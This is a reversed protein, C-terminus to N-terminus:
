VVKIYFSDMVILTLIKAACLTWGNIIVELQTDYCRDNSYMMGWKQLSTLRTEIMSTNLYKKELSSLPCDFFVVNAVADLSIVLLTMCLFSKNTVFFIILGILIMFLMHITCYYIGPLTNLYQKIKQVFSTNVFNNVLNSKNYLDVYESENQNFKIQSSCCKSEQCYPINQTDVNKEEEKKNVNNDVSNQESNNEIDDNINKKVTTKVKTM